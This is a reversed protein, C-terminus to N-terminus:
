SRKVKINEDDEMIHYRKDLTVENSSRVVRITRDTDHVLFVIDLPQEVTKVGGERLVNNLSYADISKNPFRSAVYEVVDDKLETDTKGGTVTLTLYLYAPFYHRALPNNCVVRDFDSLLFSQVDDVLQSRDYDIQVSSNPVPFAVSFDTAYLPLVVPTCNLYVKEASSFSYNTNTVELEYGFSEYGEITMQTDEAVKETTLPSRSSATFDWYYLGNNDVGMLAPFVSQYKLRYVEIFVTSTVSTIGADSGANTIVVSHVGTGSNYSVSSITSVLTGYTNTQGITLGLATLVGSSSDKIVIANTSSIRLYTSGSVLKDARLLTGLKDNIQTVVNDLTLTGTATFSVSYQIGAITLVLAKSIIGNLNSPTSVATSVLIKKTVELKDGVAFGLKSFDLTSSTLTATTPTGGGGPTIVVDTLYYPNNYINAREAPSPRFSLSKDANYLVTDPGVSFYTPELFYARMQGLSSKGVTGTLGEYKDVVDRDLALVKGDASIATVYWYTLDEDMNSLKVVDYLIIGESVWSFSSDSSFLTASTLYATRQYSPISGDASYDGGPRLTLTSTVTVPDNNLGSLSEALIDVPAKYPITVGSNTSSALEVSRVRVLPREIGTLRQYVRFSVGTEIGLLSGSVVLKTPTMSLIPYEGINNGTLIDLYVTGLLNSSFTFGADSYVTSTELPVRLDSGTQVIIKPNVADCRVSRLLRFKINTIAAAAVFISDGVRIEATSAKGDVVRFVKGVITPESASIIELAMNIVDKEATGAYAVSFATSSLITPLGVSIVGDTAEFAVDDITSQATNEPTVKFAVTDVDTGAGKLYVDTMGGIHVENSKVTLPGGFQTTFPYSGPIDSITIVPNAELVQSSEFMQIVETIPSATGATTPFSFGRISLRNPAASNVFAVSGVGVDTWTHQRMAFPSIKGLYYVSSTVDTYKALSNLSANIPIKEAEPTSAIFLGGGDLKQSFIDEKLRLIAWNMRHNIAVGDNTATVGSGYRFGPVVYDTTTANSLDHGNIFPNFVVPDENYQGSLTGSTQYAPAFAFDDYSTHIVDEPYLVELEGRYVTWYLRYPSADAFGFYNDGDVLPDKGNAYGLLAAAPTGKIGAPELGYVKLFHYNTSGSVVEGVQAVRAWQWWDFKSGTTVASTTGAFAAVSIFNGAVVGLDAWGNPRSAHAALKIYAYGPDTSNEYLAVGGHYPLGDTVTAIGDFMTAHDASPNGLAPCGFAIVEPAEVGACVNKDNSFEYPTSVKRRSVMTHDVRRIQVSDSSIKRRIPYARFHRQAYTDGTFGRIVLFDRGDIPTYTSLPAQGAELSVVDTFPLPAGRWTGGGELSGDPGQDGYLNTHPSTQANSGNVMIEFDELMIRITVASGSSAAVVNVGGDTAKIQKITRVLSLHSQDYNSGFTFVRVFTADAANNYAVLFEAHSPFPGVDIANTLSITDSASNWNNLKNSADALVGYIDLGKFTTNTLVVKGPSDAASSTVTGKLIDRQMEADRYGVVDMSVIKDFNSFLTTQIARKSNLSKETLSRESRTLFQENSEETVGDTFKNPNTVKVVDPLGTVFRILNKDVNAGVHSVVSQVDFEVYYLDGLKLFDSETKTQAESPVFQLGAATAFVIGADVSISRPSSYFVRVVGRSVDGTQRVAFINALLADLEDKTLAEKNAHSQQTRIFAIERQLPELLLALPRAVIDKLFSGASEIDLQATLPDEKFRDLIFKEINVSLPDTGLRALLPDIVKQYIPSGPADSFSPDLELLKEVLFRKLTDNAM